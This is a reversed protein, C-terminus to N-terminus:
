SGKHSLNLRSTCEKCVMNQSIHQPSSTPAWTMQSPIQTAGERPGLWRLYRLQRTIMSVAFCFDARRASNCGQQRGSEFTM